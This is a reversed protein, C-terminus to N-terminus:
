RFLGYFIVHGAVSTALLSALILLWGYLGPKPVCCDIQTQLHRMANTGDDGADCLRVLRRDHSNFTLDAQKQWGRIEAIDKDVRSFGYGTAETHTKLKDGDKVATAEVARGDTTLEIVRAEAQRLNM